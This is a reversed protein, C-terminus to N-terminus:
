TNYRRQRSPARYGSRVGQQSRGTSGSYAIPKTGSPFQTWVEPTNVLYRSADMLHDNIKVIRVTMGTPTRNAARRYLRFEQFWDVLTSFVKLRGTTLRNYVELIGAEVANEAELLNLGLGQYKAMVGKGDIAKGAGKASPDIAGLQWPAMGKVSAAVVAPEKQGVKLAHTLYMTDTDRDHAGLVVASWNWGTDFGYAQWYHRPIEFPAVTFEDPDIPYVVGEGLEPVGHERAKLQYAPTSDRLRQKEDESLHPVEEWSCMVHARGSRM